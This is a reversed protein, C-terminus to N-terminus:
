WRSRDRTSSRRAAVIQCSPRSDFRNSTSMRVSV